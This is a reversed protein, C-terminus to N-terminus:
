FEEDDWGGKLRNVPELEYHGYWLVMVFVVELALAGVVFVLIGVVATLVPEDFGLAFVTRLVAVVLLVTAGMTAAIPGGTDGYRLRERCHPCYIRNPVPAQFVAWVGINRGCNPCDNGTPM